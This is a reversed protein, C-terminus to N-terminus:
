LGGTNYMYYRWGDVLTSVQHATAGFGPKILTKGDNKIFLWIHRLTLDGMAQASQGMGVFHFKTFVKCQMGKQPSSCESPLGLM